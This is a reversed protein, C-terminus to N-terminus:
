LAGVRMLNAFEDSIKVSASSKCPAAPTGPDGAAREWLFIAM